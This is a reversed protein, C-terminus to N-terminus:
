AMLRLTLTRAMMGVRRTGGRAPRRGTDMDRRDGARDPRGALLRALGPNGDTAFRVWAAHVRPALDDPPPEPGLLAVRLEAATASPRASRYALM